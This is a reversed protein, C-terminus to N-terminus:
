RSRRTAPRAFAAHRDAGGRTRPQLARLAGEDRRSAQAQIDARQQILEILTKTQGINKFYSSVMPDLTQDVLMKIDGFRQIVLPQRATTSISSWRCRCRRSSRTRPSSGSRPSTRTTSTLARDRDRDVEPHHEDDPGHHDHRRVHQVRVQRAHVAPEVCRAQRPRGTRRPSVGRGVHRRRTDGYYSVVVGAFGVPVVIKQVLEVTAFLRNIFYTGETLVQYQRGRFGGAALFAEPDQFNNHYHPHEPTEGVPPAIIDGMPLSPGDHVTVIGTKDDTGRIIVPDFGGLTQLRTAMSM